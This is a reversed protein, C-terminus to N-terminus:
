GADFRILTVATPFAIGVSVISDFSIVAAEDSRPQRRAAGDSRDPQRRGALFLPFDEAAEMRVYVCIVGLLQPSLIVNRSTRHRAAHGRTRSAGQKGAMRHAICAEPSDPRAEVESLFSASHERIAPLEGRAASGGWLGYEASLREPAGRRWEGGRSGQYFSKDDGALWLRAGRDVRQWLCKCTGGSARRARRRTRWPSRRASIPSRGTSASRPAGPRGGQGVM